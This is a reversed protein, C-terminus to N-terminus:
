LTGDMLAPISSGLLNTIMDTDRIDREVVIKVVADRHPSKVVLERLKPENIFPLLKWSGGDKFPVLVNEGKKMMHGLVRTIATVQEAREDPYHGNSQSPVGDYFKLADSHKAIDDTWINAAEARCIYLYDNATFESWRMMRLGTRLTDRQHDLMGSGIIRKLTESAFTDIATESRIKDPTHRTSGAIYNAAETLLLYRETTMTMTM